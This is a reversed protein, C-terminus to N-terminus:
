FLDLACLHHYISDKTEATWDPYRASMKSWAAQLKASAQRGESITIIQQFSQGDRRQDYAKRFFSQQLALADLIDDRFPELSKPTDEAKLKGKLGDITENYDTILAEDPQDSGLGEYVVLKAQVARLILSYAHNIYRRDSPPIGDLDKPLATLPCPYQTGAPPAIDSPYWDEFASAPASGHAAASPAKVAAPRESALPALQLKAYYGLGAAALAIVLLAVSPSVRM